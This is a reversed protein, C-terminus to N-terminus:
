KAREKEKHNKMWWSIADLEDTTFDGDMIINVNVTNWSIYGVLSGPSLRKDSKSISDKLIERARAEDMKM